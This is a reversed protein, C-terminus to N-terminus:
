IRLDSGTESDWGIGRDWVCVHKANVTFYYTRGLKWGQKHIKNGSLNDGGARIWINLYFM